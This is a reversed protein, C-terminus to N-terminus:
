PWANRAAAGRMNPQKSWGSRLAGNVIVTAVGVCQVTTPFPAAVCVSVPRHSSATVGGSAVYKTVTQAPGYTVRRVSCSPM